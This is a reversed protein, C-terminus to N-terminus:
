INKFVLLPFFFTLHWKGPVTLYVAGKFAGFPFANFICIYLTEDELKLDSITISSRNLETGNVSVRQNFSPNIKVGYKKSQTAINQTVNDKKKQWTLQETDLHSLTLACTLTVTGGLVARDSTTCKVDPESGSVCIFGLLLFPHM